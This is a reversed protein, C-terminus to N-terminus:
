SSQMHKMIMDLHRPPPLFKCRFLVYGTSLVFPPLPHSILLTSTMYITLLNVFLHHIIHKCFVLSYYLSFKVNKHIILPTPTDKLLFMFSYLIIYTCGIVRVMICPNIRGCVQSVKRQLIFEMCALFNLQITFVFLFGVYIDCFFVEDKTHLDRFFGLRRRQCTLLFVM